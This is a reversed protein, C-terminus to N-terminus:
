ISEDGVVAVNDKVCGEEVEDEQTVVHFCGLHGDAVIQEDILPNGVEHLEVATEDDFSVEGGTLCEFGCAFKRAVDM